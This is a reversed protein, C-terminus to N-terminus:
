DLRGKWVFCDEFSVETEESFIGYVSSGSGSMSAYVAGAEYLQEKLRGITPHKAFVNAEMDNVLLERWEEIPRRVIDEITVAPRKPVMGEYVDRTSVFIDPKVLVIHWGKLSVKAPALVDGIGSAMMPRNEVFFACDAGLKSAMQRLEETTLGLGLLSNLTTLTFSADSSGGGLGAGFPIVKHLHLAVPPLEVRENLLRLAKMCLNDEAKADLELGTQKWATRESKDKTLTVELMDHLGIPYFLTEINHYGDARREVVNLGLNIKANPYVIM